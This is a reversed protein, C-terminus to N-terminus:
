LKLGSVSWTDSVSCTCFIPKLFLHILWHISVSLSTSKFFVSLNSLFVGTFLYINILTLIFARLASTIRIMNSIFM